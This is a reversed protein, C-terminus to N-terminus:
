SHPTCQACSQGDPCYDCCHLHRDELLGCPCGDVPCTDCSPADACSSPVDICYPLGDLVCAPGSGDLCHAVEILPRKCGGAPVATLPCVTAAGYWPHVCIQDPRCVFPGCAATSDNYGADVRAGSDACGVLFLTALLLRM